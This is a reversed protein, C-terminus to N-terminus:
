TARSRSRRFRDIASAAPSIVQTSTRGTEMRSNCRSVWEAREELRRVQQAAAGPDHLEGRGILYESVRRRHEPPNQDDYKFKAEVDVIRLRMGLIGPLMRGYPPEDADVTAHDGDPQLHRLQTRLLEAKEEPDTIITADCTFQV